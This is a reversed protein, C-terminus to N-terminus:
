AIGRSLWRGIPKALAVLAGGCLLYPSCTLMAGRFADLNLAALSQVLAYFVGMIGTLFVYLAALRVGLVTLKTYHNM